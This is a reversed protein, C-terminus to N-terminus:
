LGARRSPEEAPLLFCKGCFHAMYEDMEEALHKLFNDMKNGEAQMVKETITSAKRYAEEFEQEGLTSIEKAEKKTIHGVHAFVSAFVGALHKMKDKAMQDVGTPM